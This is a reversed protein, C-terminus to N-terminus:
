IMSPAASYLRLDGQVRVLTVEELGGMRHEFELLHTGDVAVKFSDEEVLVKLEFQRGPAFPFDGDREEPGWRGGLNTNRVITQEAMRPNFHFVVDSGKMFNVEFRNGGHIPEGVVTILLNPMMGAHLPLDYPVMLMNGPSAPGGYPGMPAGFPGPGPPFGGGGPAPPFGGGGPSGWTGPPMPPFAGGPFGPFPGPGAAPPFAGPDGPGYMGNGAGPQGGPFPMNPYPGPPAGPGSHFPGSPYPVPAGPLQGPAAEAPYQGQFPGPFPGPAGPGSPFQGPAGPGSPYQGPVCSGAPYGGPVSPPGPYQGPAQPGTNYPSSPFQGPAGPPGGPMGGPGTPQTPAGPAAGPWGPNAPAPASPNNTGITSAKGPVDGLADSLLIDIM